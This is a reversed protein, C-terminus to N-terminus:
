QLNPNKRALGLFATIREAHSNLQPQGWDTTLPPDFAGGLLIIGVAGDSVERLPPFRTELPKALWDSVPLIGVLVLISAAITVVGRGLRDFRSWLLTVGLALAIILATSPVFIVKGIELPIVLLDNM